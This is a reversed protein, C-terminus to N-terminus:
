MRKKQTYSRKAAMKRSQIFLPPRNDSYGIASPMGGPPCPDLDLFYGGGRKTSRRSARRRRRRSSLPARGVSGGHERRQTACRHRRRRAVRAKRNQRLRSRSRTRAGGRPVPRRNVFANESHGPKTLSHEGLQPAVTGLCDAKTVGGCPRSYSALMTPHMVRHQCSMYLPSKQLLAINNKQMRFFFGLSGCRPRIPDESATM